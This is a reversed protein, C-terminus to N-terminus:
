FGWSKVFAWFTYSCTVEENDIRQDLSPFSEVGMAQGEQGVYLDQAFAPFQLVCKFYNSLLSELTKKRTCYGRLNKAMVFENDAYMDAFNENLDCVILVGDTDLVRDIERTLKLVDTDNDFCGFLGSCVVIDFTNSEYPMSFADGVQFNMKAPSLEKCLEVASESLELGHCNEPKVNWESFFRLKEGNGCGPELVKYEAFNTKGLNILTDFIYKNVRYRNFFRSLDNKSVQGNNVEYEFAGM